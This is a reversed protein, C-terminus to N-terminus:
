RLKKRILILSVPVITTLFTLIFGFFIEPVTVTETVTPIKNKDSEPLTEIILFRIMGRHNSDSDAKISMIKQGMGNLSYMYPPIYSENYFPYITGIYGIHTQYRDGTNTDTMNFWISGSLRIELTVNVAFRNTPNFISIEICFPTNAYILSPIECEINLANEQGNLLLGIVCLMLFVKLKM